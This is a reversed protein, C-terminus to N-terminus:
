LQRSPCLTTSLTSIHRILGDCLERKKKTRLGESRPGLVLILVYCELRLLVRMPMALTTHRRPYLEWDASTRDKAYLLPTIHPGHGGDIDEAATPIALVARSAILDALHVFIATM